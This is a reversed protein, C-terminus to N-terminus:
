SMPEHFMSSTTTAEAAQGQRDVLSARDRPADARRRAVTVAGGHAEARAAGERERLLTRRAGM